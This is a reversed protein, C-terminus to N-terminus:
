FLCHLCEFLLLLYLWVWLVKTFANGLSMAFCNYSGMSTSSSTSGSFYWWNPYFIQFASNVLHVFDCQHNVHFWPFSHITSSCLNSVYVSYFLSGLSPKYLYQSVRAYSYRYTLNFQLLALYFTTTNQLPKLISRVFNKYVFFFHM